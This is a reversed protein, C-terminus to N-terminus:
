FILPTIFRGFPVPFFILTATSAFPSFCFSALSDPASMTPSVSSISEIEEPLISKSIMIAVGSM